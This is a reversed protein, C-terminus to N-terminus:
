EVLVHEYFNRSFPLVREVPGKISLRLWTTARGRPAQVILHTPDEWLVKSVVTGSWSEVTKGSRTKRIVVSSTTDYSNVSAVYRGDPSFEVEEAGLRWPSWEADRDLPVVGTRGHSGYTGYAARAALSVVDAYSIQPSHWTLDGTALDWDALRGPEDLSQVQLLVVGGGFGGRVPLVFTDPVQHTAVVLGSTLDHVDVAATGDTKVRALAVRQGSAEVAWQGAYVDKSLSKQAGNGAVFVVDGGPDYASRPFAHILVGGVAARAEFARAVEPDVAVTGQPTHLM